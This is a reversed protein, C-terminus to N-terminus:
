GLFVGDLTTDTSPPLVAAYPTVSTSTVTLARVWDLSGSAPSTVLEAVGNVVRTTVHIGTNLSGNAYFDVYMPLNSVPTTPNAAITAGDWIEVLSSGAGDQSVILDGYGDASINGVAINVGSTATAPFALFAPTMLVTQGKALAAGNYIEVWPASGPGAGVVLDDFGNDTLDGMAVRVGSTTSSGFALFSTVLKLQNSAIQYVQVLPQGGASESVVLDNNGQGTIDGAAIFGGNVLGGLVKTTPVINAGTAGNIIRVEAGPGAGPGTIFAYDPVGDGNFDAVTTRVTGTFGPFPDFSQGTATLTGNANTTYVYVM